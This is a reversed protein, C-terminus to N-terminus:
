ATYYNTDFDRLQLQEDIWNRVHSTKAFVSPDENCYLGWSLSGVQQYRDEFGPITCALPAGRDGDCLSEGSMKSACVFSRDLEYYRGLRTERLDNQCERHPMINFNVKKMITEYDKSNSTLKGWGTAVCQKYDPEFFQPPSPPPLCITNVYKDLKFPEELVLLAIDYHLNQREFLPHTIIEKVKQFQFPENRERLKLKGAVAYFSVSVNTCHAATLIVQPHILSGVCQYNRIDRVVITWPFEGLQSKNPIGITKTDLPVHRYGCKRTPEHTSIRPKLKERM